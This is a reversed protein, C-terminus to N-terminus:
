HRRRRKRKEAENSSEASTSSDAGTSAPQVQVATPRAVSAAQERNPRTTFMNTVVRMRIDSLLQRYNDSAESKYVVLPNRQAYSEMSVQVRLAEMKTLYEVWEDSIVRLLLRRYIENILYHGLFDEVQAADEASFDEAILTRHAEFWEEGFHALLRAKRNRDLQEITAQAQVFQRWEVRGWIKQQVDLATQLHALVQQTLAEPKARGLMKASVYAYRLRTYNATARRHSRQDFVQRQGTAINNLHQIIGAPEFSAEAIKGFLVEVDRVIAGNEGLLRPIRQDFIALASQKLADLAQEFNMSNLDPL